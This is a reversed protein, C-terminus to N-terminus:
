HDIQEGSNGLSGEKIKMGLSAIKDTRSNFQKFSTMYPSKSVSVNYNNPNTVFEKSNPMSSICEEDDHSHDLLQWELMPYMESQKAEITFANMISSDLMVLTPLLDCILIMFLVSIDLLENADSKGDFEIIIREILMGNKILGFSGRFIKLISWVIVLIFVIRTKNRYEKNIYPNGSFVCTLWLFLVLVIGSIAINWISLEISITSFDVEGLIYLAILLSQVTFYTLLSFYLTKYSISKTNIDAYIEDATNSHGEVFLKLLQWALIFYTVLYVLDPILIMLWFIKKNDKSIGGDGPDLRLRDFLGLLLFWSSSLVNIVLLWIYFYKALHWDSAFRRITILRLASYVTTMVYLIGLILFILQSLSYGM